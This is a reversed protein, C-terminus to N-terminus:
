YERDYQFFFSVQDPSKSVGHGIWAIQNPFAKVPNMIMEIAWSIKIGAIITKRLWSGPTYQACDSSMINRILIPRADIPESIPLKDWPWDVWSDRMEM